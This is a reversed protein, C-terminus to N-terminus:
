MYIFKGVVVGDGPIVNKDMEFESCRHAVLADM